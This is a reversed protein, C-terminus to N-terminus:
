NTHFPQNHNVSRSAVSHPWVESRSTVSHLERNMEVDISVSTIDLGPAFHGQQRSWHYKNAFQGPNCNLVVNSGAEAHEIQPPKIESRAPPTEVNLEYESEFENGDPTTCVCIYRGADSSQAQTIIM